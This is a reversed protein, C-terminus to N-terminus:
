DKPVELHVRLKGADKGNNKDTPVAIAAPFSTWLGTPEAPSAGALALDMSPGRQMGLPVPMNLVPAQPNPATPPAPQGRGPVSAALLALMPLGALRAVFWRPRTKMIWRMSFILVQQRDAPCSPALRM